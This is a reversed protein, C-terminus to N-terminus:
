EVVTCRIIQQPTKPRDSHNTKTNEIARVVDIGETVKGFV